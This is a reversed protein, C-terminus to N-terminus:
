AFSVRGCQSEADFVFARGGCSEMISKGSRGSQFNIAAFFAIYREIALL